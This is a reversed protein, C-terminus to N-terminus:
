ATGVLVRGNADVPDVMNLYRCESKKMGLVVIDGGNDHMGPLSWLKKFGLHIDYKMAKTNNSNVIGLVMDREAQVFAYRFSAQLMARPTFKYEPKMAVHMQCTKGMFGNFGVVIKLDDDEVWGIMKMDATPQVEAFYNLFQMTASWEKQDRPSVIV